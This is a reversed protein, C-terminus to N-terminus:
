NRVETVFRAEEGLLPAVSGWEVGYRMIVVLGGSSSIGANLIPSAVGSPDVLGEDAWQEAAQQLDERTWPVTRFEFAPFLAPAEEGFASGETYFVVVEHTLQGTLYTASSIFGDNALGWQNIVNSRAEIVEMQDQFSIREQDTLFTWDFREPEAANRAELENLILQSSELGFASRTQVLPSDPNVDAPLEVVFPLVPPEFGEPKAVENLGGCAGVVLVFPLLATSVPRKM